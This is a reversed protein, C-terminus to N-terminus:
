PLRSCPPFFPLLVCARACFCIFVYVECWVWFCWVNLGAKFKGFAPIGSSAFQALFPALFNAYKDVADASSPGEGPFDELFPHDPKAARLNHIFNEDDKVWEVLVEKLLALEVDGTAMPGAPSSDISSWFQRHVCWGCACSLFCVVAISLHCLCVPSVLLYPMAFPSPPVQQGVLQLNRRASGLGNAQSVLASFVNRCMCAHKQVQQQKIQSCFQFKFIEADMYNSCPFPKLALDKISAKQHGQM